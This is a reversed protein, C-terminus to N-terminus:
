RARGDETEVEILYEEETEGTIINVRTTRVANGVIGNEIMYQDLEKSRRRNEHHGHHIRDENALLEKLMEEQPYTADLGLWERLRNNENIDYRGGRRYIRHAMRDVVAVRYPPAAGDEIARLAAPFLLHRECKRCTVAFPRMMTNLPLDRRLDSLGPHDCAAGGAVTYGDAYICVQVPFLHVTVEDHM